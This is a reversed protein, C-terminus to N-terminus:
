GGGADEAAVEVEAVVLAVPVEAGQTVTADVELLDDAGEVVDAVVAGQGVFPFVGAHVPNVACRFGGGEDLAGVELWAVSREVRREILFLLRFTLILCGRVFRGRGM